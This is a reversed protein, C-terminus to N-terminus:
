LMFGQDEEPKEKLGIEELYTRAKKVVQDIEERYKSEPFEAIFTYYSDIVQMYRDRRKSEVSNRSLEYASAVIYYSIDERYKSEPYEKLANRFAMIASKYKRIKYYTYANIYSKEHLRGVLDDRMQEFSGRQASEPYRELFEEIQGIAQHTLTNDRMASPAMYYFCLTYIGEADELFISRGFKRRFEDLSTMAEDYDRIKFRSRAAFFLISDERNTGSYFPAASEFLQAAKNWSGDEYFLLGNEYMLQPDETRIIEQTVSCGAISMAVLLTAIFRIIDRNM